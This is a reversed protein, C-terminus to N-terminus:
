MNSKLRWAEEENAMVPRPTAPAIQNRRYCPMLKM